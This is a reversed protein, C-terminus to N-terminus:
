KCPSGCGDHIFYVNVHCSGTICEEHCNKDTGCYYFCYPSCQAAATKHPLMISLTKDALANITRFM